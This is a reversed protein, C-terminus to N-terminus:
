ARWPCACGSGAQDISGLVLLKLGAVELSYKEPLDGVEPNLKFYQGVSGKKAGTREEILETMDILPQPRNEAPIGFALSLNPNTDADIALVKYGDQAYLQSWVACVTTKGVGGKGCIAIKLGTQLYKERSRNALGFYLYFM